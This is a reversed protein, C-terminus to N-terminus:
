AALEQISSTSTFLYGYIRKFFSYIRNVEGLIVQLEKIRTETVEGM